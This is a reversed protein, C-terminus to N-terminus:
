SARLAAPQEAAKAILQRIQEKIWAPPDPEIARLARWEAETLTTAVFRTPTGDM